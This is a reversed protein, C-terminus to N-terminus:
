SVLFHPNSVRSKKDTSKEEDLSLTHTIAHKILYTHAALNITAKLKDQKSKHAWISGMPGHTRGVPVCFSRDPWDPPRASRAPLPYIPIIARHSVLQCLSAVLLRISPKYAPYPKSPRPPTTSYLPNNRPMIPPVSFEPDRNVPYQICSYKSSPSILIPDGEGIDYNLWNSEQIPNGAEHGRYLWKKSMCKRINFM